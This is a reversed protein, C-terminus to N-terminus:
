FAFLMGGRGAYVRFINYTEAFTYVTYRPVQTFATAGSFPKFELTLDVATIKDLNGEGNPQSLPLGGHNLGFHLSYFYKNVYPTKKMEYAPLITRFMSPSLSAYRALKGEYILEVTALPESDRLAFGPQLLDPARANIPLANPWWPTTTGAGSLDRTALFPANYNPAEYRQCFFFLNRVPNPIRLPITLRPARQSDAPEFIYHQVFYNLYNNLFEESRYRPHLSYNNYYMIMIQYFM